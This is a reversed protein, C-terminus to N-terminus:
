QKNTSNTTIQDLLFAKKQEPTKMQELIKAVDVTTHKTQKNDTAMDNNLRFTKDMTSFWATFNQIFKQKDDKTASEEIASDLLDLAKLKLDYIKANERTINLAINSKEIDTRTTTNSQVISTVLKTTINYKKAIEKPDEGWLFLSIIKKQQKFPLTEAM